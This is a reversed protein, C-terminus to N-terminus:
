KSISNGGALKIDSVYKRLQPGTQAYNGNGFDFGFSEWAINMGSLYVHENNYYLQTGRVELRQASVVSLLLLSFVLLLM